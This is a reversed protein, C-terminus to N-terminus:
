ANWPRWKTPSAYLGSEPKNAFYSETAEAPTLKLNEMVEDKRRYAFRSVDVVSEAVHVCGSPSDYWYLTAGVELENYPWLKKRWLNFRRGSTLVDPDEPLEFNRSTVFLM